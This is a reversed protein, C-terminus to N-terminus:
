AESIQGVSCLTELERVYSEWLQVCEAALELADVFETKSLITYKCKMVEGGESGALWSSTHREKGAIHPQCDNRLSRTLKCHKSGNALDACIRLARHKDIYCDVQRATVGVKNLHIIWDRVHYCHIFFSIVDDDYVEKNHGSSSFIGAYIEEVRKLYRKTRELQEM